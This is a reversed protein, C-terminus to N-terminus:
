EFLYKVEDISLTKVFNEEAVILDESLSKKAGQMIMIKEEITNRCIMKYAFVTKNQGIRHTRDIAQDQVATNWWPDVLFVYDAATLTIGANGAKLSILFINDTNDPEQFKNVLEMREPLPTDGDFHLYSLQLQQLEAAILHLMGKFQSFVLVKHAGLNETIEQILLKIKVSSINNAQEDKVLEPACCAQRLKTIGALIGMKSKGLGDKNIELFINDKLKTKLTDYFSQQDPEMDCWLTQEIKEPLDKAVQQKTRRLIFPATLHKLQAIKDENKDRDIPNAYEKRFFEASGLLDPLLVNLQSYLDFTNNMVPTGSLAVRHRAQIQQVAKTNLAQPNKINHSEDMIMCQWPRESIADIKTRAVGYSCIYINTADDFLTENQKVRQNLIAVDLTPAFKELEQKWNYILSAPCVIICKGHENKQLLWAMFCITQLTKGLGMDDALCAGADIESLLALWEFGKQQYIRLDATISKPKEYIHIDPNQWDVFKQQWDLAIGGLQLRASGNNQVSYLIWIPVTIVKVNVKAHKLIIGYQNLWDDTLVGINGDNLLITKQNSLILKQLEQLKVIEDGFSVQMDATAINDETKKLAFKTAIAHKSYRFHQMTELGSIDINKELLLHYTKLFWNKKKADDFTLYYYGKRQKAFNPHLAALVTVLEQEQAAYRRVEYTKSNRNIETTEAYPNEMVFGDYNWKPTLMLYMESLESLYVTAAPVVDITEIQFCNNRNVKYNAELPAVINELFLDPSYAHKYQQAEKLRSITLYDDIHLVYYTNQKELVFENVKFDALSWLENNITILTHLQLGRKATNRVEFSIEPVNNSFTCAVYLVNGTKENISKHMISLQNSVEILARLKDILFRPWAKQFANATATSSSSKLKKLVDHEYYEINENLFVKVVDRVAKNKIELHNILNQVELLYIEFNVQGNLKEHMFLMFIDESKLINSPQFLLTYKTTAIGFM